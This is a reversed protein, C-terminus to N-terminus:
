EDENDEASRIDQLYIDGAAFIELEDDSLAYEQPGIRYRAETDKIINELSKNKAIRQFDFLHKVKTEAEPM